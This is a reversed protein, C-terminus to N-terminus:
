VAMKKEKEIATSIPNLDEIEIAIPQGDSIFPELNSAEVHTFSGFIVNLELRGLEGYQERSGVESDCTLALSKLEGASHRFFQYFEHHEYQFRM